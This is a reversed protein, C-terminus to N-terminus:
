NIFADYELYHNIASILVARQSRPLSLRANVIVAKLTQSEMWRSLGEAAFERPISEGADNEVYLDQEELDALEDESIILFRGREPSSEWTEHNVYVWDNDQWDCVVAPLDEFSSIFRM